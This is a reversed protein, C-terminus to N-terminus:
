SGDGYWIIYMLPEESPIEVKDPHFPKHTGIVRLALGATANSGVCDGLGSLDLHYFGSSCHYWSPIKSLLKESLPLLTMLLLKFRLAFSAQYTKLDYLLLRSCPPKFPQQVAIHSAFPFVVV